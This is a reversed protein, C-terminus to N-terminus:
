VRREMELLDGYGSEVVLRELLMGVVDVSVSNGLVKWIVDETINAVYFSLTKQYENINIKLDIFTNIREENGGAYTVVIPKCQKVRLSPYHSLLEKALTKNVVNAQSGSDVLFNCHHKINYVTGKFNFRKPQHTDTSSSIKSKVTEKQSENSQSAKIIAKAMEALIRKKREIFPRNERISNKNTIASSMVALNSQMTANHSKHIYHEDYEVITQSFQELAKISLIYVRTPVIDKGSTTGIAVQQDDRSSTVIRVIKDQVENDQM